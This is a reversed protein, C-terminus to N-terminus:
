ARTGAACEDAVEPPAGVLPYVEAHRVEPLQLEEVALDVSLGQLAPVRLFVLAHVARAGDLDGGPRERRGGGREGRVVPVLLRHGASGLHVLWRWDEAGSLAPPLVSVQTSGAAGATAGPRRSLPRPDCRGACGTRRPALRSNM